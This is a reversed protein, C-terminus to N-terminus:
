YLPGTDGDEGVNMGAGTGGSTNSGNRTPISPFQRTPTNGDGFKFTGLLINVLGWISLIIFLGIVGYMISDRANKRSDESDAGVILYRVVNFIIWMFAFGILIEIFLNGLNTFKDAVDGIDRMGESQQLVQASAFLMPASIFLSSLAIIKRGFPTANKTM